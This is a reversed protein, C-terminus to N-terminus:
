DSFKKGELVLELQEALESVREGLFGLGDIQGVRKLSNKARRIMKGDSVNFIANNQSANLASITRGHNPDFARDDRLVAHVIKVIKAAVVCYVLRMSYSGKRAVIRRAYDKLGSNRKTINCTVVAANYFISRLYANSRRSVHASYVRGASSVVRPCCGCYALLERKSRFESVNGIEALIWAASFSSIGPISALDHAKKRLGPRDLMVQDVEVALLAKRATKFDLEVLDQRILAKQAPTLSFEFYPTFKELNKLIKNRHGKLSQKNAVIGKVCEGLSGEGQVVCHLLERVWEYNLDLGKPRIGARDLTKKLRNKLATRDKEIRAATRFIAKLDELVEIITKGSPFLGMAAYRALHEADIKDNKQRGPVGAAEAPNVVIIRFPWSVKTRAEQLFRFIVHHYIGTAEMVFGEPRYKQVFAWFQKLGQPNTAFVSTKVFESGSDDKSYIAVALEYKHVDLGCYFAPKTWDVSFKFTIEEM